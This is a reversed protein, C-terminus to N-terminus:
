DQKNKKATSGRCGTQSDTHQKTHMHFCLTSLAKYCLDEVSETHTLRHHYSSSLRYEQNASIFLLYKNLLFSGNQQAVAAEAVRGPKQELSRLQNM